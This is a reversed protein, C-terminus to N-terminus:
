KDQNIKLCSRGTNVIVVKEGPKIRHNDWQQMYLALGAAGSYTTQCFSSLINRAEVIREEEVPYVRTKRGSYRLHIMDKIDEENLIKFPKYRATLKDALSKVIKRPEAGFINIRILNDIPIKLRPDRLRNIENTLSSEQWRVYNEFLRGSGYPTFVHDPSVNIVEHFHWDYLVTDPRFSSTSTIDIGNPNNTLVKIARANLPTSLDALYIDAHEKKLEEVMKATTNQDLLVKIPPLGYKDFVRAAAVAANGASFISFRPIPYFELSSHKKTTSLLLRAQKGYLKAVEWMARDKITGTPNVSEDKILVQGYEPRLDAPILPTAEWEPNHPNKIAYLPIEEAWREAREKTYFRPFNKEQVVITELKM